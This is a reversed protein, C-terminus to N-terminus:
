FWCRLSQQPQQVHITVYVVHVWRDKQGKGLCVNETRGISGLVTGEQGKRERERERREYTSIM